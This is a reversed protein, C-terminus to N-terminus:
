HPKEGIKHAVPHIGMGQDPTSADLNRSAEKNELYAPHPHPGTKIVTDFRGGLISKLHDRDVDSIRDDIVIKKVYKNVDIDNFFGITSSDGINKLADSLSPNHRNLVVSSKMLDGIENKLLRIVQKNKIRKIAIKMIKKEDWKGAEVIRFIHPSLYFTDELSGYTGGDVIHYYKETTLIRPDFLFEVAINPICFYNVTDSRKFIKMYVKSSYPVFDPDSIKLKGANIIGKVLVNGLEPIFSTCHSLYKVHELANDDNRDKRSVGYGGEQTEM